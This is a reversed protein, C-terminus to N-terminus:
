SDRLALFFQAYERMVTAAMAREEETLTTFLYNIAELGNDANQKFEVPHASNPGAELALWAAKYREAFAAQSDGKAETLAVFQQNVLEYYDNTQQALDIRVELIRRAEDLQARTRAVDMGRFAIKLSRAIGDKQDDLDREDRKLKREAYNALLQERVEEDQAPSMEFFFRTVEALLNPNDSLPLPRYFFAVIEDYTAQSLTGQDEIDQASQDILSAVMPLADQKIWGQAAVGIERAHQQQDASLTAFENLQDSVDNAVDNVAREIFFKDVGCGSLALALLICVVLLSKKM